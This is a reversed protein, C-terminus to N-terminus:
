GRAEAQGPVPLWLQRAGAPNKRRTDAGAAGSGGARGAAPRPRALAARRRPGARRRAGCRRPLEAAGRADTTQLRDHGTEDAMQWIPGTMRRGMNYHIHGLRSPPRPGSVRKRMRSSLGLVVVATVSRMTATARAAAAGPVSIM